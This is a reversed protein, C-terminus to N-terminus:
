NQIKTKWNNFGHAGLHVMEDYVQKPIRHSKMHHIRDLFCMVSIKCYVSPPYKGCEGIVIFNSTSPKVHLVYRMFQFFVRDICSQGNINNGWIDSGYLLIPKILTDFSEFMINPPVSGLSSYKRKLAFLAKRAQQCLYPYADKFVDQNSSQTERLVLGLQKYVRVQSVATNNFHIILPQKANYAMCKTKIANVITHNESCFNLLGNLQKQLGATTNSILILDDAWLLHLIILNGMCVGVEAYLYDSLDAMFKRFLLGSAVGGQNVGLNNEFVESVFGSYKVRYKTKNYLSRLTDIVKGTWGGKMIKFFMIDRNVFSNFWKM